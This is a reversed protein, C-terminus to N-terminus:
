KNFIKNAGMTLIILIGAVAFSAFMGKAMISFSVIADANMIDM